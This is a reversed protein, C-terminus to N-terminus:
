ELSHIFTPSSVRDGDALVVDVRWLLKAGSALSKLTAPPIRVENTRLDRARFIEDLDEEVVEVDYLAGEPGASWRLIAGDRKLPRDEPVLSEIRLRGEDREIPSPVGPSQLLRPLVVLGVLFLAAALGAFGWYKARSASVRGPSGGSAHRALEGAFRWAEACESCHLSHQLSAKAREASTEGRAAAWVEDAEACEKGHRSDELAAFGERLDDSDRETM